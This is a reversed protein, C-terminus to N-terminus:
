KEHAFVCVACCMFLHACLVKIKEKRLQLQTFNKTSFNENGCVSMNMTKCYGNSIYTRFFTNKKANPQIKSSFQTHTFISHNGNRQFTCKANKTRM